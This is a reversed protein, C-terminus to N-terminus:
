WPAATARARSAVVRRGRVRGGLPRGSPSLARGAHRGARLVGGSLVAVRDGIAFAEAQDHTVFIATTGLERIVRHVERRLHDRLGVDLNSFPEDLLLM